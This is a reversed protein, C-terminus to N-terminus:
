YPTLAPIGQLSHLSLHAGPYTLVLIPSYRAFLSYRANRYSTRLAEQYDSVQSPVSLSRYNGRRSTSGCVAIDTGCQDGAPVFVSSAMSRTSGPAMPATGDRFSGAPVFLSSALSRASGPAM